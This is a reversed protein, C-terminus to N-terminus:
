DYDSLVTYELYGYKSWDTKNLVRYKKSRVDEFCVVDDVKMSLAIDCYITEGNWARQGNTQMDLNQGTPIRVMNVTTEYISEVTKFDVQRKTTVFVRTPEAWAMVAQRMNPFARM